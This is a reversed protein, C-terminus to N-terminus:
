LKTITLNSFKAESIYGRRHSTIALGALLKAPLGAIEISNADPDDSGLWTAGDDTSYEATILDGKRTLRIWIPPELESSDVSAYGASEADADTETRWQLNLGNTPTVVFYATRSGPATSERIMLGAKAWANTNTPLSDARVTIQFDGEVETFSYNFEDATGWIDNGSGRITITGTAPDLVAGLDSPCVALENTPDENIGMVQYGAPLGRSLPRAQILVRNGEVPNGDADKTVAAVMYNYYQNNV